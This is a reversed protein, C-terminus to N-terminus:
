RALSCKGGVDSARQGSGTARARAADGRSDVATAMGGSATGIEQTYQRLVAGTSPALCKEENQRQNWAQTRFESAFTLAADKARMSQGPAPEMLVALEDVDCQLYWDEVVHRLLDREVAPMRHRARAQELYLVSAEPTAFIYFLILVVAQVLDTKWDLRSEDGKRQMDRLRRKAKKEETSAAQIRSDLQALRDVLQREM